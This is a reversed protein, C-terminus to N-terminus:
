DNDDEESISIIETSIYWGDSSSVYMSLGVSPKDMKQIADIYILDYFDDFSSVNGRANRDFFFIEQIRWSIGGNRSFHGGKVTYKSGTKTTINM